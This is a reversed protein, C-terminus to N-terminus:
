DQTGFAIVRNRGRQRALHLAEDAVAILQTPSAHPSDPRMCSVGLSVTILDREDSGHPQRLNEVAKRIREAAGVATQLTTGVMLVAFEEGAFRALLDDPRQFDARVVGAIARLCEDAAGQGRSAQCAKFHDVALLILSVEQGAQSAKRWRHELEADFHRRSALETLQDNRSAEELSANAQLLEHQLLRERMLLLWNQRVDREQMYAGYLTFVALSLVTLAAPAMIAFPAQPLRSWGYMFMAMVFFDLCMAPRLRMRAVTNCYVLVVSVSILYPGAMPDTSGVCLHVNIITSAMGALVLSGERLAPSKLKTLVLLGLLICPTFWMLRLRLADDFRDPIMMWDSLLLWNFLVSVLAGAGLLTQLRERATDTQFRSELPQPFRLMRMGGHLLADIARADAATLGDRADAQPMPESMLTTVSSVDDFNRSSVHPAM